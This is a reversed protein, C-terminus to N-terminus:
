ELSQPLRLISVLEPELTLEPGAHAHYRSGIESYLTYILSFRRVTLVLNLGGARCGFIFRPLLM